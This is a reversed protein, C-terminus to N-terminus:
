FFGKRMQIKLIGFIQKEPRISLDTQNKGVYVISALRGTDKPCAQALKSQTFVIHDAMAANLAKRVQPVWNKLAM